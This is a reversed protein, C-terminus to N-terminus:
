TAAESVKAEDGVGRLERSLLRTREGIAKAGVADGAGVAQWYAIKADIYRQRLHLNRAEEALHRKHAGLLALQERASGEGHTRNELYARMAGVSMGTANLCAVAVASNVDAETYRRHGSSPDRGVPSLLGIAEYYRLTSEPLGCLRAAERISYQAPKPQASM